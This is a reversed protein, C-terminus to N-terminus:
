FSTLPIQCTPASSRVDPMDPNIGLIEFPSSITKSTLRDVIAEPTDLKAELKKM